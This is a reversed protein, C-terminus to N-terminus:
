FSLRAIRPSHRSALRMISWLHRFLLISFWVIVFLGPVGLELTIKGLGGEAAAQGGGGFHHTGQTGVGLGAGFLGFNDYAEMIPALGLQVFRSPADRFVTETRQVYLSYDASGYSVRESLGTALSMYGVCAVTTLAIIVPKGISREFILWLIFYTGLFVAFEM